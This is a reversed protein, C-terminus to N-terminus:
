YCRISAYLFISAFFFAIGGAIIAIVKAPPVGVFGAFLFTGLTVLYFCISSFRFFKRPERIEVYTVIFALLGIFSIILGIVPMIM